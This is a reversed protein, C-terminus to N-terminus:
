RTLATRGATLPQLSSGDSSLTALTIRHRGRGWAATSVIADVGSNTLASQNLASAVDPRAIGYRSSIDIRLRDDAIAVVRSALQRDPTVIWGLIRIRHPSVIRVEDVSGIAHVDGIPTRDFAHAEDTTHIARPEIFATSATETAPTNAVISAFHERADIVVVSLTM